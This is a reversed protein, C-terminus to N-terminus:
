YKATIWNDTKGKLVLARSTRLKVTWSVSEAGKEETAQEDNAASDYFPVYQVDYFGHGLM